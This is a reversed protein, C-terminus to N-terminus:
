IQTNENKKEKISRSQKHLTPSTKLRQIKLIQNKEERLYNQVKEGNIKYIYIHICTNQTYAYTYNYINIYIYNTGILKLLKKFKLM